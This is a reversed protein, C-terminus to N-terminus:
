EIFTVIPSNHAAKVTVEGTGAKEVILNGDCINDQVVVSLNGTGQNEIYLGPISARSMEWRNDIVAADMTVGEGITFSVPARDFPQGCRTLLNQSFSIFSPGTFPNGSLAADCGFFHNKVILFNGTLHDGGALLVGRANTESSQGIFQNNVVVYGCRDRLENFAVGVSASNDLLFVNELMTSTGKFNSFAIGVSDNRVDIMNHHIFVNEASDCNIGLGGKDAIIYFGSIANNSHCSIAAESHTESHILIPLKHSIAPLKIPGRMTPLDHITAAGWLKQHAKLRIGQDMGATTGDGALVYIIDGPSSANQADLLSHFPSEFTGDSHSTNDVFQFVYPKGTTPNVVIENCAPLFTSNEKKARHKDLVIIEQREVPLLMKELLYNSCAHKNQRQKKPGFPYSLAIYGQISTHFLNDYSGYIGFTTYEKWRAVINAQGGLAYQGYGGKFYYPGISGDLIVNKKKLLPARVFIDIGKFALEVKKTEKWRSFGETEVLFLHNGQFRFSQTRDTTCAEVKKSLCHSRKGVPFYGNVLLDWNEGLTEFGLSVQNYNHSSSRRYDYFANAGYSRCGKLYRFGGGANAAPKGDNFVHGRLDLFPLFHSRNFSCFGTLSTYGEHYGIGGPAIHQLSLNMPYLDWPSESKLSTVLFTSM